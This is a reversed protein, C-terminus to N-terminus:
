PPLRPVLTFISMYWLSFSPALKITSGALEVSSTSLAIDRRMFELDDIQGALYQALSEDNDVGFHRHVWDWSSQIDVLVGDLDFVVIDYKPM